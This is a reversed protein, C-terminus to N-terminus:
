VAGGAVHVLNSRMERLARDSLKLEDELAEIENKLGAIDNRAGDLEDELRDIVQKDTRNGLLTAVIMRTGNTQVSLESINTECSRAQQESIESLRQTLEHINM